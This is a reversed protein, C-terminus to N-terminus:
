EIIVCRGKNLFTAGPRSVIVCAAIDAEESGDHFTGFWKDLPALSVTIVNLTNTICIIFTIVGMLGLKKGIMLKDFGSHSM